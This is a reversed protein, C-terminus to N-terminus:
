FIGEFLEEATIGLSKYGSDSKSAISSFVIKGNKKNKIEVYVSVAPEGDIGTKYKWEIVKGTLIYTANIDKKLIPKDNILKYGRITYYGNSRLVGEAVLAAKIGAYPTQSLNKFPMIEITQNKNIKKLTLFNNKQMFSCGTLLLTIFFLLFRNM